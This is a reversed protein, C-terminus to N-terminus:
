EKECNRRLSSCRMGKRSITSDFGCNAGCWSCRGLSWKLLLRGTTMMKYGLFTVIKRIYHGIKTNWILNHMNM